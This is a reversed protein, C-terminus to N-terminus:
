ADINLRVFRIAVLFGMGVFFNCVTIIFLIAVEIFRSYSEGGIGLRLIAPGVAYTILFM